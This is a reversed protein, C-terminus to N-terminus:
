LRDNLLLETHKYVFSSKASAPLPLAQERWIFGRVAVAGFSRASGLGQGFAPGHRFSPSLHSPFVAMTRGTEARGVQSSLGEWSVEKREGRVCWRM